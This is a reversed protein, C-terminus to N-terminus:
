KGLSQENRALISLLSLKEAVGLDGVRGPLRVGFLHSGVVGDGNSIDESLSESWRNLSSDSSDNEKRNNWGYEIYNDYNGLTENRKWDCGM